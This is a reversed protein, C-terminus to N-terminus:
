VKRTAEINFVSNNVNMFEIKWGKEEFFNKLETVTYFSKTKSLYENSYPYNEHLIKVCVDLIDIGSIRIKGNIRLKSCVINLFDKEEFGLVNDVYIQTFFSDPINMLESTTIDNHNEKNTTIRINNEIM